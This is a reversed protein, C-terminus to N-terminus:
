AQGVEVEVRPFNKVIELMSEYCRRVVSEAKTSKRHRHADRLAEDLHFAAKNLNELLRREEGGVLLFAYTLDGTTRLARTAEPSQLVEGLETIQRSDKLAPQTDKDGFLWLLLDKLRSSKGKPIPKDLNKESGDLVLGMYSRIDPSNLARYFVGFDSEARSTDLGFDDRAQVLIRYGAFNSRITPIKSGLERALDAFTRKREKIQYAIFRAKAIPEWKLAGSIHRFGVFSVLEDRSDFKIVPIEDLQYNIDEAIKEWEYLKLSKAFEPNLLLKIAALRRNGEVVIFRGASAAPIVALPEQPFFGNDALSKGLEILSYDRALVKLLESQNADQYEEPLRPNLPDLLLDNVHKMEPQRPPLVKPQGKAGDRGKGITM